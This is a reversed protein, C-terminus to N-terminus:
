CATLRLGCTLTAIRTSHRRWRLRQQLGERVFSSDIWLHIRVQFHDSLRLASLVAALEARGISQPLWQFEMFADVQCRQKTVLIVFQGPLETRIVGEMVFALATQSFTNFRRMLPVLCSSMLSIRCCLLIIVCSIWMPHDPVFCICLLHRPWALLESSVLGHKARLNALHGCILVHEHTNPVLCFKCVCVCVRSVSVDYRGRTRQDIFCGSQLSLQVCLEYATLTANFGRNQHVDLGVLSAMSPRTCATHAVHQLWVDLM